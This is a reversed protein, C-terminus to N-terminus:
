SSLMCCQDSSTSTNGSQLSVVNKSSPRKVGNCPRTSLIKGCLDIIANELLPIGEGTKASVQIYKEAMADRCLELGDQETIQPYIVDLKNGIVLYQKEDAKLHKPFQEDIERIYKISGSDSIDVVKLVIDAKNLYIPTLSKYREQGATDWIHVRYIDGIVCTLFSAGITATESGDYGLGALVKCISTKGVSTKGVVAVNIITQESQAASALTILTLSPLFLSLLFM